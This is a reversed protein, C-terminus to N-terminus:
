VEFLTTGRRWTDAAPAARWTDREDCFYGHPTDPYVVVEHDVGADELGAAIPGADVLHDDAGVLVLTRTAFAALRGALDLTPEPGAFPFAPTTLWGPYLTALADFRVQTAGYFLLHGGVSLGLGGISSAGAARLTAVAAEVDDRVMPRDLRSLLELGRARGDATAPLEPGAGFRHYFDPVVALHGLAALRDAVRRVYGTVGFMEFGVVIGTGTAGASPRALYSTQM